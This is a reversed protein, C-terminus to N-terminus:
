TLFDSLDDLNFGHDVFLIDDCNIQGLVLIHINNNNKKKIRVSNDKWRTLRSYNYSEIM